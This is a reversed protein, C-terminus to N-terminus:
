VGGKGVRREIGHRCYSYVPVSGHANLSVRDQLPRRLQPKVRKVLLLFLLSRVPNLCVAALAHVNAFGGGGERGWVFM